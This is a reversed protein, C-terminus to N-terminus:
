PELQKNDSLPIIYLLINRKQIEGLYQFDHWKKAENMNPDHQNKKKLETKGTTEKTKKM